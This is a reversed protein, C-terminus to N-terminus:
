SLHENELLGPTDTWGRTTKIPVTRKVTKSSTVFVVHSSSSLSHLSQSSPHSKTDLSSILNFVITLPALPTETRPKIIKTDTSRTDKLKIEYKLTFPSFNLLLTYLAYRNKFLTFRDLPRTSCLLFESGKKQHFLIEVFILIRTDIILLGTM